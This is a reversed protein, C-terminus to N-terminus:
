APFILLVTIALALLLGLVVLIWVAKSRPPKPREADELARGADELARQPGRQLVRQPVTPATPTAYPATPARAAAVDEASLADATGASEPGPAGARAPAEPEPAPDVTVIAHPPLPPRPPAPPRAPPPVKARPQGDATVAPIPVTSPDGAEPAAPPPWVLTDPRPQRSSSPTFWSSSDAAAPRSWAGTRDHESSM